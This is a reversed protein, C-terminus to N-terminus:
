ASYEVKHEGAGLEFHYKVIGLDIKACPGMKAKATVTGDDNLTFKFKQQNIATPALMACDMACRFWEPMEGKVSCLEDMEKSTHAKGQNAGYGLAIVVYMKEGENIVAPVKGKRYSLAVWCTNLGLIQSLLVLHEGWYGVETDRKKEAVLAFYNRCYSFSGYEPGKGDSFAKDENIMLQFSFGTKENIEDIAKKLVDQKYQEIEKDLFARVSHRAQAAEVLTMGGRQNRLWELYEGTTRSAEAENQIKEETAKFIIEDTM